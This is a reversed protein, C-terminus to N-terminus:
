DVHLWTVPFFCETQSLLHLLERRHPNYAEEPQGLVQTLLQGPHEFELSSHLPANVTPQKLFTRKQSMNGTGLYEKPTKLFYNRIIEM